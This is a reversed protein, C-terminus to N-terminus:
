LKICHSVVLWLRALALIVTEDPKPRGNKIGRCLTAWPAGGLIASAKGCGGKVTRSVDPAVKASTRGEVSMTHVSTERQLRRNAEDMPLNTAEIEQRHCVLLLLNRM